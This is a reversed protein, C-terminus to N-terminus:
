TYEISHLNSDHTFGSKIFVSRSEGERARAGSGISGRYKGSNEPHTKIRFYLTDWESM